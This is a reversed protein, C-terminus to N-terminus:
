GQRKLLDTSSNVPRRAVYLAESSRRTAWPFRVGQAVRRGSSPRHPTRLGAAGPKSSCRDSSSRGVASLCLGASSMLPPRRSGPCTWATEAIITRALNESVGPIEALWAVSLVADDPGTGAHPGTTADSNVGRGRDARRLPRVAGLDDLRNRERAQPRDFAYNQGIASM